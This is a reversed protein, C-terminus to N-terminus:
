INSITFPMKLARLMGTVWKGHPLRTLLCPNIIPKRLCKRRVMERLVFKKRTCNQNFDCLEVEIEKRSKFTFDVIPADQKILGQNMKAGTPLFLKYWTEKSKQKRSFDRLVNCTRSEDFTVSDSVFKFRPVGDIKLELSYLGNKNYLNDM